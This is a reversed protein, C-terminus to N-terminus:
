NMSESSKKKQHSTSITTITYFSPYSCTREQSGRRTHKILPHPTRLLAQLPLSPLQLLKVTKKICLPTNKTSNSDTSNKQKQSLREPTKKKQPLSMNKATQLLLQQTERRGATATKQNTPTDGKPKTNRCPQPVSIQHLSNLKLTM